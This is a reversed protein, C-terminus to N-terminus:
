LFSWYFNNKQLFDELMESEDESVEVQYTVNEVVTIDGFPLDDVAPIFPVDEIPAVVEAKEVEETEKIEQLEALKSEEFKRQEEKRLEELAKEEARKVELDRRQLESEVHNDIADTVEKASQFELLKVYPESTLSMDHKVNALEVAQSISLKNSELQGAAAIIKDAIFELTGKTESISKSAVLMSDDIVLESAQEETMGKSEIIGILIEELEKRKNEKAAEVIKTLQENLPNITNDFLVELSKIKDEFEKVPINLESKIEKRYKDIATRGKRIEALTKRIETANDDTFALSKYHKLSDELEAQIQDFNFEITAPTINITKVELNNM